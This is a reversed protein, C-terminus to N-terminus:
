LTIITGIASKSAAAELPHDAFGNMIRTIQVGNNLAHICAEIKPIMGGQIIKERMLEKAEFVTLSKVIQQKEDLLIGDVDTLFILEDAGAGAISGAATDANINLTAGDPGRGIPAIVPIKGAAIIPELFKASVSANDGVRGLDVERITEEGIANFLKKKECSLLGDSGIVKVAGIGHAILIERIHENVQNMVKEVITMTKDDTVRLGQIKVPEIGAAQMERSIDKGGGHVIMFSINDKALHAIDEAMQHLVTEADATSGGLKVTIIKGSASETM